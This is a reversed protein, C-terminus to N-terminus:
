GADSETKFDLELEIFNQIIKRIRSIPTRINKEVLALTGPDIKIKKSLRRFSLGSVQRAVFLQEGIAKKQYKYPIYGLFKIISKAQSVKPECHNNEWNNISDNTVGLAKAVDSQYIRRDLRVKRLHDGLTVLEQPYNPNMPRYGILEKKCILFAVM